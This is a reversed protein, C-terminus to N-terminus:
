PGAGACAADRLCPIPPNGGDGGTFDGGVGYSFTAMGYNTSDLVPDYTGVPSPQGGNGPPTFGTIRNPTQYSAGTLPAGGILIETAQTFNDGVVSVATGGVTPGYSPDIEKVIPPDVYLFGAPLTAVAGGIEVTVDVPGAAHLPTELTMSTPSWGSITAAIGGFSVTTQQAGLFNAGTVTVLTSGLTSGRAPAVAAVQPAAVLELVIEAKGPNGGGDIATADLYLVGASSPPAPAVFTLECPAQAQAATSCDATFVTSQDTRVIVELSVVQGFGDDVDVVGSVQAGAGVIADDPPSAITVVPPIRDPGLSAFAQLLRSSQGRPDAVMLDYTGAAIGAPVQARLLTESQWVV